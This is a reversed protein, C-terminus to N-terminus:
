SALPAKALLQRQRVYLVGLVVPFWYYYSVDVRLQNLVLMGIQALIYVAAVITRQKAKMRPLGSIIVCVVPLLTVQDLAWGYAATITSALLLGPALQQWDWVTKYQMIWAIFIMLGVVSPLFQLWNREFGFVVRLWTGLTTTYWYLPPNSAANMYQEFVNPSIAVVLASACVLVSAGGLVVKWRKERIVWWVAGALFLYAVHPKIALLALAAGALYDRKGKVAMLFGTIGVLLWISIQGLRLTQITPMYVVAALIGLWYRKDDQPAFYSWLAAGCIAVLLINTILWALASFTFPLLAFPLALALTWPPNWMMVPLLELLGSSAEMRGLTAADYPNGRQVLVRAAGWYQRYDLSWGETVEALFNERLEFALLTTACIFLGLLM